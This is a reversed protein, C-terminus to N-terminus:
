CCSLASWSDGGKDKVDVGWACRQEHSDTGAAHKQQDWKIPRELLEVLGTSRTEGAAVTSPTSTPNQYTSRPLGARQRASLSLRRRLGPRLGLGAPVRCVEWVTQAASAM